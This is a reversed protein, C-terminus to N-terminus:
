PVGTQPLYESGKRAKGGAAREDAARFVQGVTLSNIYSLIYGKDHEQHMEATKLGLAQLQHCLEGILHQTTNSMIPPGLLPAYVLLHHSTPIGAKQLREVSKNTSAGNRAPSGSDSQSDYVTDPMKRAKMHRRRRILRADPARKGWNDSDSAFLDADDDSDLVVKLDSRLVRTEMRMTAYHVDGKRVVHMYGSEYAKQLTQAM